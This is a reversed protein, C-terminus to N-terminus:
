FELYNFLGFLITSGKLHPPRPPVQVWLAKRGVSKLDTAYVLEAVRGNTISARIPNAGMYVTKCVTAYSSRWRAM